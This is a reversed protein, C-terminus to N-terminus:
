CLDFVPFIRVEKQLLEYEANLNNKEDKLLNVEMELDHCKQMLQDKESKADELDEMIRRIESASLLPLSPDSVPQFFPVVDNSQNKVSYVGSMSISLILISQKLNKTLGSSVGAKWPYADENRKKKLHQPWKCYQYLLCPLCYTSNLLRYIRLHRHCWDLFVVTKLQWLHRILM